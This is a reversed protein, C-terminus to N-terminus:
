TTIVTAPLLLPISMGATNTDFTAPSIRACCAFPERGSQQINGDENSFMEHSTITVENINRRPM